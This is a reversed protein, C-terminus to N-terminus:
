IALLSTLGTKYDFNKKVADFGARAIQARKDEHSLYYDIKDLCEELSRFLVIEKDERFYEALEPQYNSLVFGGCGLIDMVRLPIGSHISRLTINLNIRSRNFVLPMEKDYDVIGKNHAQLVPMSSLDSNTYLSFVEPSYKEAITSLFIQREKVTIHKELVSSEFIYDKSSYFEGEDLLLGASTMSEYWPEALEQPLHEAPSEYNFLHENIYDETKKRVSSDIQLSDYYHYDDTYLTGIFSIDSTFRKFSTDTAERIVKGFTDTDTSLPVHHVTTCGKAILTNVLERDFIGIHNCTLFAQKAYLTLHPCDFVWSYYPIGVVDCISSIIPFYNNSLIAEIGNNHIFPIMDSALKLDKTYNTCEKDYSVVEHGMQILNHEILDENFAQWRYFLIKMTFTYWILPRNYAFLTGLLSEKKFNM